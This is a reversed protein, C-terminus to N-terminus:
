VMPNSYQLSPTISHHMLVWYELVGTNWYELGGGTHEKVWPHISNSVANFSDAYNWKHLVLSIIEIQLLICEKRRLKGSPM